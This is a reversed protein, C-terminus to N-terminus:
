SSCTVVASQTPKHKLYYIKISTASQQAPSLMEHESMSSGVNHSASSEDEVGDDTDVDDMLMMLMMMMLMMMMMMMMM